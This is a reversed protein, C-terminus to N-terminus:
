LNQFEILGYRKSILSDPNKHYIYILKNVCFKSSAYKNVLINWINDEFYNWRYNYIEIQFFNYAKLFIEKRILKNWILFDKM